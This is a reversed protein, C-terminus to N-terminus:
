VSIIWNNKTPAYKAFAVQRYEINLKCLIRIISVNLFCKLKNISLHKLDHEDRLIKQYVFDQCM